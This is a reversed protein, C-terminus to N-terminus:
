PRPVVVRPGPRGCPCREVTVPFTLGTELRVVPRARERLSTVLIQGDEVEVRWEATDVHAGHGTACEVAVAPGLFVLARPELGLSWLAGYADPRGLLEVGALADAGGGDAARLGALLSGGLGIMARVPLHEVAALLRAADFETDDICVYPVHRRALALQFPYLLPTESQTAAVVAYGPPGIGLASLFGDAAAADRRLEAYSCPLDHDGDAATFRGVVFLSPKGVLPREASTAEVADASL